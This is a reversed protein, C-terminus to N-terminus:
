RKTSKRRKEKKFFIIISNYLFVFNVITIFSEINFSMRITKFEGCLVDASYNNGVAILVNGDKDTRYLFSSGSELINTIAETTPHGYSNAGCSIVSIDPSVVELFEDCSSYKSGHHAVKLIDADLENGYKEILQMEITSSIDGTFLFSKDFCALKIVYSMENTSLSNEGIYFDFDYNENFIEINEIHVCSIENIEIYNLLNEYYDTEGEIVPLVVNEVDFEQILRMAGGTHDTDAHTLILYDIKKDDDINLVKNKIYDTYGVNSSTLGTDILVVKGDPLNIAIADGQGVSIFHVMLSNYSSVIKGQYFLKSYLLSNIHNSFIGISSLVVVLCLLIILNKIKQTKIM